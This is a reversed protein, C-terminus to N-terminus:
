RSDSPDLWVGIPGLINPCKLLTNYMQYAENTRKSIATCRRGNCQARWLPTDPIKNSDIFLKCGQDDVIVTQLSFWVFRRLVHSLISFLTGYKKHQNSLTSSCSVPADNGM